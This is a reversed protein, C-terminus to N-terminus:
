RAASDIRRAHAQYLSECLVDFMSIYSLINGALSTILEFPWMPRTTGQDALPQDTRLHHSGFSPVRGM